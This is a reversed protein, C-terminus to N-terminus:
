DAPAWISNPPAKFPQELPLPERIPRFLFPRTPARSIRHRTARHWEAAKNFKVGNSYIPSCILCHPPYKAARARLGFSATEIASPRCVRETKRWNTSSGTVSSYRPGRMIVAKEGGKKGGSRGGRRRTRRSKLWDVILARVFSLTAIERDFM